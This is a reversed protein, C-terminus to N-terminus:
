LSKIFDIFYQAKENALDETKAEVLVRILPETGSPRILIRGEGALLEEHKKIEALLRDDSMIADRQQPGGSLHYSPMVQPYRPIDHVLESATKGSAGLANLFMISTLQGDGTTADDSFIIHGSSEGGLNCGTETMLELVNRDGVASRFFGFGNDRAFVDMGSNSVVTGVFANQNLKGARSMDRAFVALLMDGDIVEGHEDVVLCRDADGDFAFGVGFQGTKMIDCLANLHTSGCDVNINIGDPSDATMVFAYHLKRFLLRATEAAAGNACDIAIKGNFSGPTSFSSLYKIYENAYLGNDYNIRGLDGGTAKYVGSGDDILQEIRDELSDSIKYGNRGFMKVGNHEFPNHSASIVIGMDAESKATLFAVAPTPLVGLLTVDAGASCLGASLAAQLMDCSIRTDRAIFVQPSLIGTEILVSAAARGAKFALEADLDKGAVGRIGDTGFYKGMEDECVGNRKMRKDASIWEM